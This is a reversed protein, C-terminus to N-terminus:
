SGPADRHEILGCYGGTDPLRDTDALLAQLERRARQMEGIRRDLECLRSRAAELVYGCPREGRDRLQLIEAVEALGLDLRQARRIFLLREVDEEAYQRYGSGSRDPEPLLGISEYYRITKPNVGVAKALEGIRM